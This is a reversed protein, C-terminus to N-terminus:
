EGITIEVQGGVRVTGGPPPNQAVVRGQQSAEQLFSVRTEVQLEKLLNLAAVMERGRLDPLTVRDDLPGLSQLLVVTDGRVAATGPAPDQAFITERAHADSHIQLVQGLGLGTEMLLRQAQPLSTGRLEPLALQDSGRSQILRVESGIKVRAGRPPRQSVVHGKPINSSFEDAIIRPVLGAEKLLEGAALSEVGVVRPIEVRDPEMFLQMAVYASVAGLALLGTLIALTKVLRAV